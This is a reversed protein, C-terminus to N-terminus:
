EDLDWASVDARELGNDALIADVTEDVEDDGVRRDDVLEEGQWLVVVTGDLRNGRILNGFANDFDDAHRRAWRDTPMSEVRYGSTDSM